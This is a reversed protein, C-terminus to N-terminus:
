DLSNSRALALELKKRNIEDVVNKNETFFKVIYEYTRPGSVLEKMKEVAADDRAIDILVELVHDRMFERSAAGIMRHCLAFCTREYCDLLEGFEFDVDELRKAAAARYKRWHEGILERHSNLFELDRIASSQRIQFFAFLLAAVAAAATALEAVSGLEFDWM